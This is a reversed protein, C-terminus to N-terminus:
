IWNIREKYIKAPIGMLLSNKKANLKSTVVSKAAVICDQPISSGKLIIADRGIWVHNGININRSPNIIVGEENAIYHGDTTRVSINKAIMCKDGISIETGDAVCFECNGDMYVSKGIVIRNNNGRLHLKIDYLSTDDNIVITNNNGQFMINCRHLLPRGRFEIRNDGGWEQSIQVRHTRAKGQFAINNNFIRLLVFNIQHYIEKLIQKM